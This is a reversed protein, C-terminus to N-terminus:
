NRFLALACTSDTGASWSDNTTTTVFAGRACPSNSRALTALCTNTVWHSSFVIVAIVHCAQALTLGSHTSCLAVSAQSPKPVEGGSAALLALRAILRTVDAVWVGTATNTGLLCYTSGTFSTSRASPIIVGIMTTLAAATM